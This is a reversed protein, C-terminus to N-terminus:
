IKWNLIEGTAAISESVAAIGPEIADIVQAMGAAVGAFWADHAWDKEAENPVFGSVKMKALWTEFGYTDTNM